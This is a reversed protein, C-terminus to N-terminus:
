ERIKLKKVYNFLSLKSINLMETLFKLSKEKSLNNELIDIIEQETYNEKLKDSM